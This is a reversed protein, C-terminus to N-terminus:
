QGPEGSRTEPCAPRRQGISRFEDGGGSLAPLMASQIRRARKRKGGFPPRPLFQRFEACIRQNQKRILLTQFIPKATNDM